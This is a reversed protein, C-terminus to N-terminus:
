TWIGVIGFYTELLYIIGLIRMADDTDDTWHRLLTEHIKSTLLYKQYQLFIELNLLDYNLLNFNTSM